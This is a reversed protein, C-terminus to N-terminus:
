RGVVRQPTIRCVVRVAGPADLGYEKGTYKLSLEDILERGGEETMEVTGRVEFYQYPDAPDFGTLSV